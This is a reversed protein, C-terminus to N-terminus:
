SSIDSLLTSCATAGYSKQFSQIAATHDTVAQLKAAVAKTAAANKESAATVLQDLLPKEATFDSTAPTIWKADITRHAKAQKALATIQELYSQYADEIGQAFPALSSLDGAKAAPVQKLTADVSTCIANARAVFAMQSLGQASGCASLLITAAVGTAFVLRRRV